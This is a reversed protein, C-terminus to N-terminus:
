FVFEAKPESGALIVMILHLQDPDGPTVNAFRRPVGAPVACVDLPGIEMYDDDRKNFYVRWRGSYPVFTENSDHVHWNAGNGPRAEVYSFNFGERIVVGPTPAKQGEVGLGPGIVAYNRREHGPMKSDVYRDDLYPLNKFAVTRRQMEERTVSTIPTSM